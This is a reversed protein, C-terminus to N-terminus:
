DGVFLPKVQNAAMRVARSGGALYIFITQDLLDTRHFRAPEFGFSRALGLVEGSSFLLTAGLSLDLSAGQFGVSFAGGVTSARERLYVESMEPLGRSRPSAWMLGGRLPVRGGAVWEFGIAASVSLDSTTSEPFFLFNRGNGMAFGPTRHRGLLSLDTTLMTLGDPRVTAGLRLEWPLQDRLEPVAGTQLVFGSGSQGAAGSRPALTTVEASDTIAMAPAQVMAGLQWTPTPTWLAGLRGVVRYNTMDMTASRGMVANATSADFEFERHELSHRVAFLSGGVYLSPTGRYAYGVGLWLADDDRFVNLQRANEDANQVTTAYRYDDRHPHILALGIGHPRIGDAGKRGVKLVGAVFTPLTPFSSYDLKSSAYPTVIGSEISRSRYSRAWLSGSVAVTRLTAIGAPNHFIASPDDGVAVFAGALGLAHEGVLHNEYPGLQCAARSAVPGAFLGTALACAMVM